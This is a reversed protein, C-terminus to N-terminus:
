EMADMSQMQANSMDRRQDYRRFNNLRKRRKIGICADRKPISCYRKHQRIGNGCSVSCSADSSWESWFALMEKRACPEGSYRLYNKLM